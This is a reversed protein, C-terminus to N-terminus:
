AHRVEVSRAHAELGEARALTAIAPALRALAEPKLEQVSIVKVFDAASLGGRLRAQGSTPLVHNPGSAYDGAAEPSCPGLFVSGANRVWGLLEPHHLALHEPALANSFEVAQDLSEVLVIAGNAEISPRAVAATPLVALQRELERAVAEALTRSTTLLIASADVDHEAQALMDAAIWGPNGERAIIVIETPGAVFDIGTEGALLKKAAAVYINGPGVIRDVRPVTETGYALAAIAQAGGMQFFHTVGLWRAVGLIEPSPRPCAVCTTQVGAVQAPIVNMLLTSPLPYRGAPTYAGMSDLPRVIQGLRRGDPYEVMKEVPLQLRAYERINAAAVAVAQEFAPDLAGDVPIRVSAGEFGDLKRAYELLAADGRERVGRLIPAVAREADELKEARRAALRQADRYPLIRIM